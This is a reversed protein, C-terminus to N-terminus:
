FDDHFTHRYGDTTKTDAHGALDAVKTLDGLQDSVLSVLSHRLEYITWDKGSLGASACGGSTGACTRSPRAV